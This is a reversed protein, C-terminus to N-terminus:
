DKEALNDVLAAEALIPCDKIVFTGASIMNRELLERAYEGLAETTDLELEDHITLVLMVDNSQTPSYGDRHLEEYIQAIALKQIDGSSGQIPLNTLSPIGPYDYWLRRRNFPPLTLAQTLSKNSFQNHYQKLGPYAKFYNDYNNRAQEKTMTVGYTQKAYNGLKDPQMGYNLGLRVAKASQRLKKYEKKVKDEGNPNITVLEEYPIGNLFAATSSYPDKQQRFEALMNEDGCVSAMVRLEIQSNHSVFGESIYTQKDAVTLDFCEEEGYYETTAVEDYFIWNETTRTLGLSNALEYNIKELKSAVAYSVPRKLVINNRLLQYSEGKPSFSKIFEGTLPVSGYSPNKNTKLCLADLRAKKRSSLFGIKDRFIHTFLAPIEITYAQKVTLKGRCAPKLVSLIGLALLLQHVEQMLIESTTTLSVRDSVCGDAEFLGRIYAAVVSYNSRFVFSPAFEKSIGVLRFWALLATSNLCTEYVGRYQRKKGLYGFAKNAYEALHDYLDSDQENVVWKASYTSFSGDGTLYGAFEALGEDAYKPVDMSKNNRHIYTLEPLTEYDYVSGFGRGAAIAVYDGPQIDGVHKWVYQNNELVRIRHEATAKLNYGMKTTLTNIPLVGKSIVALVPKTTSDDQYVRDETTVLDIPVLGRMTAIKTGCPLCYDSLSFKRGEGAIFCSRINLPIGSSDLPEKGTPRPLQNLNPSSSSNHVCLENAIFNNTEEVEIDWVELSTNSVTSYVYAYGIDLQNSLYYIRDEITLDKAAVWGRNKTKFLHDATCVVEGNSIGSYNRQWKILITPLIGKNWVNLVKRSTLTGDQTYTYVMDGVQIDEINKTGSMTTVQTGKALCSRGTNIIQNFSTHLRGTVPNVMGPLNHIYSSLIKSSQRYAILTDIIPYELVDLMKLYPTGTSVVLPDLEEPKKSKPSYFPNPIELERLLQLVQSNSSASFGEDVIDGLLNRRVYRVPIATLFDKNAKELTEQYFPEVKKLREVDLLIGNYEMAAFGYVARMELRFTPMLSAKVLEEKIIKALPKLILTDKAAYEIQETSLNKVSWDSKQETKDVEMDLYRLSIDKLGAPLALGCNLVKDALMTDFVQQGTMDINASWLMQVDFKFNHFLFIKKNKVKLLFKNFEEVFYEQGIKFLDFVYVKSDSCLQVLRILCSHCDLGTTETDIAISNDNRIRLNELNEIVEEKNTIYVYDM